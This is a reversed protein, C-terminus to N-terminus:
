DRTQACLHGHLLKLKGGVLLFHIFLVHEYATHRTPDM